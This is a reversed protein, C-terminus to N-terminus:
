IKQECLFTVGGEWRAQILNDAPEVQHTMSTRVILPKDGAVETPTGLMKETDSHFFGLDELMTDGRLIQVQIDPPSISPPNRIERTPMLTLERKGIRVSELKMSGCVKLWPVVDSEGPASLVRDASFTVIGDSPIPQDFFAETFSRQSTDGIAPVRYSVEKKDSTNLFEQSSNRVRTVRILFQFDGPAHIPRHTIRLFERGNENVNEITTDLPGSTNLGSRLDADFVRNADSVDGSEEVTTMDFVEVRTTNHARYRISTACGDDGACSVNPTVVLSEIRAANAFHDFLIWTAIGIIIAAVIIGALIEM